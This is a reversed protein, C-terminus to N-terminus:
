SPTPSLRQHRQRIEVLPAVCAQEVDREATYKSRKASSHSWDKIEIDLDNIREFQLDREISAESQRQSHGNV